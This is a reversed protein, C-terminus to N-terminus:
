SNIFNDIRSMAIKLDDMSAACSLRMYGPEGFASGHIVAVKGKDLLELVFDEDSKFHSGKLFERIDAFIYFAGDPMDVSIGPMDNLSQCVYKVRSQYQKVHDALNEKPIKLAEVAAYQSISCPNSLSQSQFVNMAKTIDTPALSYGIRWGAMAYGKSIGNVIICRDKLEPAINLIHAPSTSWYILDYIEDSIIFIDPFDKLVQVIEQIDDENYVVGTPNNPNNLIVIKTRDTISGRLAQATLKFQGNKESHVIVPTGGCLTVMDPYSVWYPAHIIVEDGPNLVANFVNFLAHKAGTTVVIEDEAFGIGYDRKYRDSISHKLLPIGDVQTYRTKGKKIAIMGAKAAVDPSEFSSEGASLAIINQGQSSLNKALKTIEMTSSPKISNIRTSTRVKM